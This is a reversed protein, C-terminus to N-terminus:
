WDPTLGVKAAQKSLILEYGKKLDRIPVRHTIVKGVKQLLSPRRLLGRVQYWTRYMLRGSIGYITAAKFIMLRNLDVKFPNPFVGLLSVRGGKTLADFSTVLGDPHGSMEAAVDVGNGETAELIAKVIAERGLDRASYVEDAGMAQALEMRTKNRGGATAFVKDAGLEKAVAVALLGIPGMGTVLVNRGAIDEVNNIPLLTQVANGLPEQIAGVIPDLDPDNKWANHAPISVYEAFVGDRDVGLITMNQCVHERSTLCQLCTQDVIHTEASVMDGVNFHTVKKGVEIVKGSMEHGVVLPPKIRGAAWEDWEYIHVDTGCIAAGKVEVLVDSDSITPKGVSGREVGPGPKKKLFAEMVVM